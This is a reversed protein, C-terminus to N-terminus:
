TNVEQQEDWAKWRHQETAKSSTPTSLIIMFLTYHQRQNEMTMLPRIVIIQLGKKVEKSLM